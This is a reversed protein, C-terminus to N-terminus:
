ALVVILYYGNNRFCKNIKSRKRERAEAVALCAENQPNTIHLMYSVLM